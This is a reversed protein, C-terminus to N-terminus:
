EAEALYGKEIKEVRKFTKRVTDNSVKSLAHTTLTYMDQLKFSKNNRAVDNKVLGWIEEIPNLECNMPPTRCPVHGQEEIIRDVVFQKPPKNKKILEYLEPKLLGENFPINRDRLWTKMDDKRTQMTPASTGPIARSHYPANDFMICTPDTLEPLLRHQLYDEFIDANMETHYDVGDTSHSKFLLQANNLFGRDEHIAHLLVLRKGRGTPILRGVTGDNSLWEKPYTHHANIATEDLAACKFQGSERLDKMKQVYARTKNRLDPRRCLVKRNGKTRKFSFGKAKLLRWLTTKKLHLSHHQSLRGSLKPLTIVDREDNMHQIVSLVTNAQEPTVSPTRTTTKRINSENGNESQRIWMRLTSSKIGTYHEARKLPSNISYVLSGTSTENTLAKVIKIVLKKLDKTYMTPM